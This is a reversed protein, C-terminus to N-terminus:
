FAPNLFLDHYIYSRHNYQTEASELGTGRMFSVSLECEIVPCLDTRMTLELMMAVCEPVLLSVVAYSHSWRDDRFGTAM